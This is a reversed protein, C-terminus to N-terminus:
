KELPSGDSSTLPSLPPSSDCRSQIIQRRKNNKAVLHAVRIRLDGIRALIEVEPSNKNELDHIETLWDEM